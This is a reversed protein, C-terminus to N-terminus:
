LFQPIPCSPDRAMCLMALNDYKRQMEVEYRCTFSTVDAGRFCSLGKDKHNYKATYEAITDAVLSRQAEPVEPLLRNLYVRYQPRTDGSTAVGLWGLAKLNSKPQGGLGHLYIFGVRAQADVFGHKALHLLTPFAEEYNGHIFQRAATIKHGYMRDMQLIDLEVPDLREGTVVLEDVYERGSTARESAATDNKQTTALNSQALAGATILLATTIAAIKLM